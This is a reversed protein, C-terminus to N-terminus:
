LGLQQSCLYHYLGQRDMLEDHTGHEVVKGKELVVIAHADRVTSLRHAIIFSTRGELLKDMNEKVARESETDLASTAEDFVLVPPRHYLARAIAIRQRQGGSIAIGSEGIRSEYGMPLREIFEHANAVRAAWLVADMDPEQEGFAINRAITDDFVHNEQLVFGIKRRLDRYNLRSLEVGDYLITGQTPELLGSLCKILTTKGSGSRGVIAIKKNPTVEFTIGDLIAPSEPGGYRFGVDRFSIRGELTRVPVLRSHDYGQEPDHEFVDNLRDLLVTVIQLNDWLQLLTLIPANALAVLTNFAVLAGITLNGQMVQHAGAWLFLIVSLVTLMQVGGDYTLVTFDAKFRKKAVQNFENLMLERFSGEAGMAKVTEIGKIADIQYSFYKGFAKELDDYIPQLWRASFFMLLAYLPTISLFVLTLLPSYIFMLVLTAALQAVATLANVGHQVLFERVQRVGALRRQIDGTRRTNFYSMPLALLKRTLFDLTATDIRIAVFSLLYRQVVLGAMMFCLIAIMSFVIVRLLAVDQDVLVRDVIVQTFVPLAMQLASVILALGVAQAFIRSFPKVFPWLWASRSQAEPAFDFDTTYDFLAAYGTWKAAFDERRMRRRGTAPDAIRVHTDSVDYVVIWHNGEWHAIAPLPMDSLNRASAKVSRAALGLETAAHCIAKLSTGDLSTHVLQRIRALSIKRGFHQCVMGLAAAGCDMEDVQRVHNFTRIRRAKKAFKGDETAFPASPAIAAEAEMTSWEMTYQVQDPGIKDHVTVEAPLMEQAFDLPFLATHRQAYVPLRSEIQARFEPHEDLLDQYNEPPLRLLRCPNLAEVSEARPVDSFASVEGFFDGKRLYAVNRRRSDETFVRLRGEEVIYMPGAEDGQRFVLEGEAINVPELAAVLSQIADGPLEAFPTFERFFAQLHRHKIQLEVYQRIEPRSKVLADFVSKDLRLVEVDSSARVTATRRAHDLLGIEGFTDGPRLANLSIEEGNDGSKVLRARGSLLIYYADGVEGERVIPAGFSFSAPTFSNKVLEKADPPLFKLIPLDDLVARPDSM